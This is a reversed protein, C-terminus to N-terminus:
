QNEPSSTAATRAVTAAFVRFSHSTSREPSLVAGLRRGTEVKLLRPMGLLRALEESANTLADPDRFKERFPSPEGGSPMKAGLSPLSELDSLLWSELSRCVIRVGVPADPGAQTRVSELLERKLRRCDDHDQDVLILFSAGPEKWSRVKRAASRRLDAKGEFSVCVFPLGPALRPLLAELFAKMSPEELLLVLRM